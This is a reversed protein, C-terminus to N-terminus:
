PTAARSSRFAESMDADSDDSRRCREAKAYGPATASRDTNSSADGTQTLKFAAFIALAATAL